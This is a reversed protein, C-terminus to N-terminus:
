HSAESVLWEIRSYPLLGATISSIRGQADIVVLTPLGKVGFGQGVQESEDLVIPYSAPHSALYGEVIARPEGENVGLLVLDKSHASAFRELTTAQERCPGCWTAWFDLVIVKGRVAALSFRDGSPSPSKGPAAEVLPLSFDAAMFNPTARKPGLKPLVLLGFLGSTVLVLIVLVYAQRPDSTPKVKQPRRADNM